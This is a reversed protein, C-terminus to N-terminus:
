EVSDIVDGHPETLRVLVRRGSDRAANLRQLFEDHRPHTAPLLYIRASEAFMVQTGNSRGRVRAVTM